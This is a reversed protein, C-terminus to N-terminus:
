TRGLKEFVEKTKESIKEHMEKTYPDFRQIRRRRRYIGEKRSLTCKLLDEDVKHGIFQLIDRLTEDTNSVLDDYFVIKLRGPFDKAWSLNTQEWLWLKNTVFQHWDPIIFLFNSSYDRPCLKLTIWECRGETRTFREVSAFGIHGASQRNFEAYIASEPSRVLLIATSFMKFAGTGWEHTKVALVQYLVSM